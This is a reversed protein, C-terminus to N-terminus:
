ESRREGYSCFDTPKNDINHWRCSPKEYWSCEGCRIIDILPCDIEYHIFWCEGEKNSKFNCTRCNKPKSMNPIAIM